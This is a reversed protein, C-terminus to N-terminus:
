RTLRELLYALNGLLIFLAILLHGASQPLMQSLAVGPSQTMREYEAAGVLGSLLGGLQGSRYYPRALPDAKASVAAVMPVQYSGGVQEVWRRLAEHSGALVVVLDVDEMGKVGEWLPSTSLPPEALSEAIFRVGAENGAVYGLNLCDRGWVYGADQGVTEELIKQALAPGEPTLGLNVMKARRKMLHHFIAELQPSIEAATGADYDHSLLVLSGEELGEITQYLDATSPTIPLDVGGGGLLLSGVIVGALLLYFLWGVIQARRKRPREEAVMRPALPQAVVGQFTVAQEAGALPSPLEEGGKHPLGFIAESPLVGPIGALLGKKEGTDSQPPGLDAGCRDCFSLGLPNLHGCSPCREGWESPFPEGCNYCFGSGEENAAGCRPCYLM